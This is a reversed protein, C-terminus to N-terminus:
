NFQQSLPFCIREMNGITDPPNPNHPFGNAILNYKESSPTTLVNVAVSCTHLGKSLVKKPKPPIRYDIPTTVVILKMLVDVVM